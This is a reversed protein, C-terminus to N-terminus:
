LRSISLPLLRLSVHPPGGPLHWAVSLPDSRTDLILKIGRVQVTIQEEYAFSSFVIKSVDVGEGDDDSESSTDISPVIGLSLGQIPM